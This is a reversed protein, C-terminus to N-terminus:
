NNLAGQAIWEYIVAVNALSLAAANKPMTGSAVVSYLESGAPDGASVYTTNTAFDSYSSLNPANSGSHCSVCNTTLIQSVQTFTVTAPTGSAGPLPTSSGPVTQSAAADGKYNVYGCGIGINALLIVAAAKEAIKAKRM